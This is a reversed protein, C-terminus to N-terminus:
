KEALSDRQECFVTPEELIGRGEEDKRVANFILLFRCILHYSFVAVPVGLWLPIHVSAGGYETQSKRSVGLAVIV